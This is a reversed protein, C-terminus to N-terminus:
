LGIEAISKPNQPENPLDQIKKEWWSVDIWKGFKYGTKHYIGIIEFGLSKHLAISADNPLAIGAYANIFGQAKLIDFLKTYLAKGIGMKYFNKDVYISTDVCWKYASREKHKNAYAYGAFKGDVECIIWPFNAIVSQIRREIEYRSVIEYEFSITSNEVIEKYINYINESDSIKALRIVQAM